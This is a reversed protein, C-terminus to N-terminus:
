DEGFTGYDFKLTFSPHHTYCASSRDSTSVFNADSFRFPFSYKISRLTSTLSINFHMNPSYNPPHPNSEHPEPYPGIVQGQSYPVSGEPEM